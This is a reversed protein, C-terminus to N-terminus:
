EFLLSDPARAEQQCAIINFVEDELRLCMGEIWPNEQMHRAADRIEQHDILPLHDRDNLRVFEKGVGRKYFIFYQQM